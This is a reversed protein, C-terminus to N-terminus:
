VTDVFTREARSFALLGTLLLALAAAASIGTQLPNVTGVGLFACRYMEVVGTMPNLSILTRWREPVQSLPYVVPTGYMWVQTLFGSLFAFDRYKTTLASIWLGAGMGVAASVFLLLPLALILPGPHIRSSAPSFCLYYFLFCLFAALQIAFAILRSVVVSLPIVLRPFYVKGFISMNALFTTSTQGLCGAFYGWGLMGCLYFLIPPVGDTPIGAIRAFVVTFVATMLLPQVLFWLPGLVTQKYQAVFDRRVLLFLLDRYHLIDRWPIRFWSRNPEIVTLHEM